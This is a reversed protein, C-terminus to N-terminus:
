DLEKSPSWARKHVPQDDNPTTQRSWSALQRRRAISASRDGTIAPRMDNLVVGVLEADIDALQIVSTACDAIKSRGRRTVMLVGDAWCAAAQAAPGDLLPPSDVIVYDFSEALQKFFKGCASSALLGAADSDQPRGASIVKLGDMTVASLQLPATQSQIFDALGPAEGNGMRRAVAPNGLDADVLVVRSGCEAFAAALNLAVTSKGDSERPSTVLITALPRKSNAVALATRLHRFAGAAATGPGDFDTTLAAGLTGDNPICVLPRTGLVREIDRDDRITKNLRERTLATAAGALLGGFIAVTVNMLTAPSTPEPSLTAPTVVTLRTTPPGGGNPVELAAVTRTMSEAVASALRQAAERNQSTASIALMESEPVPHSSVSARAQDLTMDVDPAKVAHALVEDSYVLKAYSTVRGVAGMVDEYTNSAGGSKTGSTVYLTVTAEYVPKQVMSFILAVMGFALAAGVIIKWGRVVVTLMDRTATNGVTPM